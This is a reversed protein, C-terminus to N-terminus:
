YLLAMHYSGYCVEVMSTLSTFFLIFETACGSRCINETSQAPFSLSRLPLSVVSVSQLIQIRKGEDYNHPPPFCGSIPSVHMSIVKSMHGESVGQLDEGTQNETAETM